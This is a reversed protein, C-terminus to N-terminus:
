VRPGQPRAAIAFGSTSWEIANPRVSRRIV